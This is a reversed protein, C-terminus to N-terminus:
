FIDLTPLELKSEPVRVDYHHVSQYVEYWRDWTEYYENNHSFYLNLLRCWDRAQTMDPWSGQELAQRQLLYAYLSLNLLKMHYIYKQSVFGGIHWRQLWQLKYSNIRKSFSGGDDYFPKWLRYVNPPIRINIIRWRQRNHKYLEQDNENLLVFPNWKLYGNELILEKSSLRQYAMENMPIVFIDICFSLFTKWEHLYDVEKIKSLCTDPHLNFKQSLEEWYSQLKGIIRERLVITKQPHLICEGITTQQTKSGEANILQTVAIFYKIGVHQPNQRSVQIAWYKCQHLLKGLSHVRNALYYHIYLIEIKERLHEEDAVSDQIDAETLWNQGLLIRCRRAGQIHTMEKKITKEPRGERRWDDADHRDYDLHVLHSHLFSEPIRHVPRAAHITRFQSRFLHINTSLSQIEPINIYGEHGRSLSERITTYDRIIDQM